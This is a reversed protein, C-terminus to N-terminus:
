KQRRYPEDKARKGKAKREEALRAMRGNHRGTEECRAGQEYAQWKGPTSCVDCDRKGCKNSAHRQEAEKIRREKAALLDKHMALCYKL